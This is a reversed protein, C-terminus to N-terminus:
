KKGSKMLIQSSRCFYFYFFLMFLLLPLSFKNFITCVQNKTHLFKGWEEGERGILSYCYTNCNYRLIRKAIVVGFVVVLALFARSVSAISVKCHSPQHSFCSSICIYRLFPPPPVLFSIWTIQFLGTCHVKTFACHKKESEPMQLHYSVCDCFCFKLVQLHYLKFLSSVFFVIHKNRSAFDFSM